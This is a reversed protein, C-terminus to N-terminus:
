EGKLAEIPAIRAARRAPVGSAAFMVLALAAASGALSAPDSAGVGYLVHSLVPRLLLAGAVGAAIGGVALRGTEALVSALVQPPRAGLAIRISFERRRLAVVYSLLGYVGLMALGVAAAGFGLMLRMNLRSPALAAQYIRRLTSVAPVPLAPDLDHFIRAIAPAEEAGRVVLQMDELPFQRVPLYYAPPTERDLGLFRVNGAVGVIEFRTPLGEGWWSVADRTDLFRGLVRGDPFHARAFAENVIAVPPHRADDSSTFERGARLPVGVSRFYDEGVSRFWAPAADEPRAGEPTGGGIWQGELPHNYALSAAAVGPLARVEALLRDEFRAVEAAGPYRSRPLSFPTIAVDAHFGPNVRSLELFSRTLLAAGSVLLVAIATEALVLLRLSGRANRSRTSGRAISSLAGNTGRRAASLAPILGSLLGVAVSVGVAFALIGGHLRVQALRPVDAPVLAVILPLGWASLVIGLVGALAAVILSEALIQAVIRGRRAGLATRVALEHGRAEARALQLSTVNACAIALVFAVAGFLLWLAPRMAGETERDLPELRVDAARNSSDDAALRRALATMEKQAGERTFGGALRGLVGLVYSHRGPAGTGELAAPVFFEPQGAAFGIKGITLAAVPYPARPMVGVVTRTTGELTLPRGVINPDSGFRSVWLDHGLVVVPAAGSQAEEPLFARGLVPSVGLVHFFDPTVRSGHLLVPDGEGTLTWTAGQFAALSEFARAHERWARLSAPAPRWPRGDPGTEWLVVIREPSRYPLPALVVTHLISFITTSAAIGAALTGIAAAAFGPSRRLGRLAYRLDSGIANM